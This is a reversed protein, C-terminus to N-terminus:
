IDEMDHNAIPDAIRRVTYDVMTVSDSDILASIDVSVTHNLDLQFLDADDVIRQGVAKIRASVTEGSLMRDRDVLSKLTVCEM